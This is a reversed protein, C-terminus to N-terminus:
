AGGFALKGALILGPENSGDAVGDLHAGLRALSGIETFANGREKLLAGGGPCFLWKKGSSYSWIQATAAQFARLAYEQQAHFQTEFPGVSQQPASLQKTRKSGPARAIRALHRPGRPARPVSRWSRQERHPHLVVRRTARARHPPASAPRARSSV